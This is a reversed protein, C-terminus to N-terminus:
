VVPGEVALAPPAEGNPKDPVEVASLLKSIDGKNKCKSIDVGLHGALKEMVDRNLKMLSEITFHGDVVKPIDEDEPAPDPGKTGPGSMVPRTAYAAVGRAVLRAEEPAPLSFEGDAATKYGRSTGCTGCTIHIM